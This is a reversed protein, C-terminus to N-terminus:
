QPDTRRALRWRRARPRCSRGGPPGAAHGPRRPTARVALIARTGPGDGDIAGSPPDPMTTLHFDAGWAAGEFRLRVQEDRGEFLQAGRRFAVGAEAYRSFQYLTRGFSFLAEAREDPDDILDLAGEFRSLSIPEGAAAEALGLDVLVRPPLAASDAVDSAPRLYRLAAAPTGKSAAARGADHLVTLAWADHTPGSLLLHEAIRGGCTCPGGVSRRM